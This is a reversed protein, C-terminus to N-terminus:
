LELKEDRRTPISWNEKTPEASDWSRNDSRNDWRSNLDYGQGSSPPHRPRRDYGDNLADWRGGSPM